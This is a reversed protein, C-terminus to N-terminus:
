QYHVHRQGYRWQTLTVALIVAFLVLGGRRRLGDAPQYASRAQLVRDLPFAPRGPLHFPLVSVLQTATEVEKALVMRTKAHPVLSM